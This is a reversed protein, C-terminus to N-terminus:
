ATRHNPARGQHKIKELSLISLLAVFVFANLTIHLGFDFVSHAAVGAIAIIAGFSTANYYDDTSGLAIRSQRIVAAGFWILLLAGIVGGSALIELYDNHAQQPTLLGSGEHYRPIDAWYGGFGVGAIPNAKFMQWTSYWIDRRRTALHLDTTDTVAIETSVNELTAALPDGGIWIVGSVVVFLVVTAMVIRPALSRKPAGAGKRERVISFLLVGFVLQVIMALIGARSNALVLATWLAILAALYAPLRERRRAPVIILGAVLGIAMEMLYAFHNRNTFQAYGSGPRLNPLIFGASHQATQRMMGFVASAVAVGIVVHVLTSLRRRSNAYRTLMLGGLVLAGVKLVFRRTEFADASISYWVKQGAADVQWLNISQILAFVILAMLPYFVRFQKPFWFGARYGEVIWLLSLVVVGVEFLAESWPEVTGYPIAVLTLLLLLGGLIVRGFWPSEAAPIANEM